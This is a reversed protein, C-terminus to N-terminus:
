SGPLKAPVVAAPMASAPIQLRLQIARQAWLGGADIQMTLDAYKAVDEFNGGDFALSALHYAAECRVAKVSAGNEALERLAATGETSKGSRIECMAKGLLARTVFPPGPLAAVAKDYDGIAATYDGATFADDALKLYAAGALPHGQHEQAFARLRVPTTAASYVSQIENERAAALAKWGYWGIIVLVVLVCGILVTTRNEKKEWVARLQEEFPPQVETKDAPDGPRNPSASPQNPSSNSM